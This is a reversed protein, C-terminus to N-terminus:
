LTRFLHYYGVKKNFSENDIHVILRCIDLSETKIMVNTKTARWTETLTISCVM